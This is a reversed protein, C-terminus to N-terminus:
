ELLDVLSDDAESAFLWEGSLRMHKRWFREARDGERRAILDVLRGHARMADRVSEVRDESTAAIARAAHQRSIHELTAAVVSLTANGSLTMLETHFRWAAGTFSTLETEIAEEEAALIERLQVIEEDTANEAAMRAAPPEFISRAAYIDSMTAGRLFLLMTMSRVTVSADPLHVVLGRHSGRRASLLQEVELIRLAERLTPRSVGFEEMLEAETLSAGEELEGTLIRRRLNSAVVIARRPPAGNTSPKSTKTRSSSRGTSKKKATM